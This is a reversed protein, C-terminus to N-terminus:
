KHKNYDNLVGFYDYSLHNLIEHCQKMCKSETQTVVPKRFNNSFCKKSCFSMSREQYEQTVKNFEGLVQKQDLTSKLNQVFGEM